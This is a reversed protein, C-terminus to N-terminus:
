GRLMKLTRADPESQYYKDLLRNFVSDAPHALAFLTACSRLKLDDPHGLIDRASLSHPLALLTNACEVLRPGLRPHSLYAQAEEISNIAYLRAMASNGLGACQPFIFWMWHSQKRGARLEALAAEYTGQQAREFRSLNHPDDM